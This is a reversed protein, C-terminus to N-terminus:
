RRQLSDLEHQAHAAMRYADIMEAIEDISLKRGNLMLGATALRIHPTPKAFAMALKGYVQMGAPHKPLPADPRLTFKQVTLLGEDKVMVDNIDLLDVPASLTEVILQRRTLRMFTETGATRHLWTLLIFIGIMVVTLVIFATKGSNIATGFLALSVLLAVPAFVKLRKGITFVSQEPVREIVEKLQAIAQQQQAERSEGYEASLSEALNALPDPNQPTSM